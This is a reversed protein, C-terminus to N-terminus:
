VCLREKEDMIEEEKGRVIAICKCVNLFSMLRPGRIIFGLRLSSFYTYTFACVYRGVYRGLLHLTCVINLAICLYLLVRKLKYMKRVRFLKALFYIYLHKSCDLVTLLDSYWYLLVKQASAM